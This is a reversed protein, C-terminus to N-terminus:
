PTRPPPTSVFGDIIPLDLDSYNPGYEDIVSGREDILYLLGNLRGIGIPAREQVAIDVTSPLTLRLTADAVWPSELVAHRWDDLDIAFVSKGRLGDVSALLEGTSLRHNGHIVIHRVQFM